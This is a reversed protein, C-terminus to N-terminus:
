WRHTGSIYLTRPPEITNSAQGATAQVFLADTVNEVTLRYNWRNRVYGLGLDYRTAGPIRYNNEARGYVSTQYVIGANLSFGNGQADRTLDYRAFTSFKQRAVGRLERRQTGNPKFGSAETDMLAYGGYIAWAKVSGSWEIEWGKATNSELVNEGSGPVKPDINPRLNDKQEIKFRAVTLLLGGDFLTLKAGVEDNTTIPERTLRQQLPSDIPVNPYRSYLSSPAGAESHVGYLAAWKVPKVTLGYMPSDVDAPAASNVRAGNLNNVVRAGKATDRRLGGTFILRGDFANLQHNVFYGLGQGRTTQDTAVTLVGRAGGYVPNFISLPSLTGPANTASSLSRSFEYGVLTTNRTGALAYAAVLDGQLRLINSRTTNRRYTRNMLLDGTADYFFDHQESAALTDQDSRSFVAGQRLSFTDNFAHTFTLFANQVDVVRGFDAEGSNFNTPTWRPLGGVRATVGSPPRLPNTSGDFVSAVYVAGGNQPLKASLYEVEALLQTRSALKWAVSPSLATKKITEGTRWGDAQTQAAVMRYALNAHGAVPGTVDVVGRVFANSGVTLTASGQEKWLPKKTILNLLGGTESAGAISAAAGRIVEVREINSSDSEYSPTLFGNRYRNFVLFGRITAGDPINQRQTVNPTYRLAQDLRWVSLDKLLESNLVSISQPVNQAEAALRTASSLSSAGYGRDKASNVTFVDLSVASENPESTSPSSTQSLLNPGAVITSLVFALVCRSSFRIM